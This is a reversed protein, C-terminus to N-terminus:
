FINWNVINELIPYQIQFSILMGSWGVTIIFTDEKDEFDGFRPM